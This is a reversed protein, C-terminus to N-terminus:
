TRRLLLREVLTEDLTGVKPISRTASLIGFYCRTIRKVDAYKRRCRHYYASMFSKKDTHVILTHQPHIDEIRDTIILIGRRALKALLVPKRVQTPLERSELVPWGDRKAKRRFESIETSPPYFVVCGPSYEKRNPPNSQVDAEESNETEQSEEEIFFNQREPEAGFRRLDRMSFKNAKDGFFPNVTLQELAEKVLDEETVEDNWSDTDIEAPTINFALEPYEFKVRDLDEELVPRKSLTNHYSGGALFNDWLAGQNEIETCVIDYYGKSPVVKYKLGNNLMLEKTFQALNAERKFIHTPYNIHNNAPEEQTTVNVERGDLTQRTHTAGENLTSRQSTQSSTGAAYFNQSEIIEKNFANVEDDYDLIDTDPIPPRVIAQPRRNRPKPERKPQNAYVPDM